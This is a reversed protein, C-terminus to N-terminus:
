EDPEKKLRAYTWAGDSRYEAPKWKSPTFRVFEETAERSNVTWMMYEDVYKALKNFVSIGGLVYFDGETSTLFEGNTHAVRVRNRSWEQSSTLVWLNRGKWGTLEQTRRGVLCPKEAILESIAQKQDFVRRTLGEFSWGKKDLVCVFTVKRKRLM